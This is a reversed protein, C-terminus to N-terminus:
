AEMILKEWDGPHYERTFDHYVCLRFESMMHSSTITEVAFHDFLRFIRMISLFRWEVSIFLDGPVLTGARIANPKMKGTKGDLVMSDWSMDKDSKRWPLKKLAKILPKPCENGPTKNTKMHKPIYAM